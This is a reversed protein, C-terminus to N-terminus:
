WWGSFRSVREKTCKRRRDKKQCAVGTGPSYVERLAIGTINSTACHFTDTARYQLGNMIVEGFINGESKYNSVPLLFYRYQLTYIEMLVRQKVVPIEM